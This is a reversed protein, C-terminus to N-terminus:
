FLTLQKPGAGNGSSHLEEAGVLSADGRIHLVEVEPHAESLYRAILHHRHCKAPDEESCLIATTEGAALELLGEIGEQFWARKM